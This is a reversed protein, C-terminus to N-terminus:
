GGLLHTWCHISRTCGVGNGLLHKVNLRTEVFQKFIEDNHYKRLFVKLQVKISDREVKMFSVVLHDSQEMIITSFMIADAEALLFPM